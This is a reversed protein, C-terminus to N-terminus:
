SLFWIGWELWTTMNHRIKKCFGMWKGYDGYSIALEIWSLIGSVQISYSYTSFTYIHHLIEFDQFHVRVLPSNNYAKTPFAWGAGKYAAAITKSRYMFSNILHMSRVWTECPRIQFSYVMCNVGYLEPGELTQLGWAQFSGGVLKAVGWTKFMRTDLQWHFKNMGELILTQFRAFCYEAVLHPLLGEEVLSDAPLEQLDMTVKNMVKTYIFNNCQYLHPNQLIKWMLNANQLVISDTSSVISPPPTEQTITTAIAKDVLTSTSPSAQQCTRNPGPVFCLFLFPHELLDERSVVESPHWRLITISHEPHHCYESFELLHPCCPCHIQFPYGPYICFYPLPEESPSSDRSEPNSPTTGVEPPPELWLLVTLTARNGVVLTIFHMHFTDLLCHIMMEGSDGTLELLEDWETTSEGGIATVMAVTALLLVLSFGTVLWSGYCM